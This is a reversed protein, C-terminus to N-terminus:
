ALNAVTYQMQKRTEKLREMAAEQCESSASPESAEYGMGAQLSDLREQTKTLGNLTALYVPEYDAELETMRRLKFHLDEMHRMKKRIKDENPPDLVCCRLVYNAMRMMSKDLQTMMYDMDIRIIPRTFMSVPDDNLMLDSVYKSWKPSKKLVRLVRVKKQNFEYDTEKADEMQWRMKNAEYETLNMQQGNIITMSQSKKGQAARQRAVRKDRKEKVKSVPGKSAKSGKDDAVNKDAEEEGKSGEEDGTSAVTSGTSANPMIPEEEQVTEPAGDNKKNDKKPKESRKKEKPAAPPEEAPAAQADAM